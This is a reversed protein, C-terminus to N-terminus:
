KSLGAIMRSVKAKKRDANKRHIINKKSAVDIASMVEPLIKEAEAKKGEKALLEIKKIMTKMTTRYPLLRAKRVTNQKARKIASKIIPM